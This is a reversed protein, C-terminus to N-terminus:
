YNYVWAWWTKRVVGGHKDNWTTQALFPHKFDISLLLAYIPQVGISEMEKKDCQCAWWENPKLGFVTNSILSYFGFPICPFTPYLGFM